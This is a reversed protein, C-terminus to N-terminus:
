QKNRLNITRQQSLTVNHNGVSKSLTLSITAAKANNLDPLYTTNFASVNNIVISDSNNEGALVGNPNAFIRKHLNGDSLYYIYYDKELASGDYVFNQSQDKAPVALILVSQAAQYGNNNLPIDSASKATNAISDLTFNLDKQFFSKQINLRYSRLAVAFVTSTVAIITGLIAISILLEILTFGKNKNM